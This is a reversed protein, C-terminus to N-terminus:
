LDNNDRKNFHSLLDCFLFVKVIICFVNSFYLLKNFFYQYRKYMHYILDFFGMVHIQSNECNRFNAKLCFKNKTLFNCFYNDVNVFIQNANYEYHLARKYRIDSSIVTNYPLPSSPPILLFTVYRTFGATPSFYYVKRSRAICVRTTRAGLLM